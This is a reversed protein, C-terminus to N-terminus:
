TSYQKFVKLKIGNKQFFDGRRSQDLIDYKYWTDGDNYDLTFGLFEDTSFFLTYVEKIRRRKLYKIVRENNDHPINNWPSSDCPHYRGHLTRGNVQFLALGSDEDTYDAEFDFVFYKGELERAIEDVSRGM